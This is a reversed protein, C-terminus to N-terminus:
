KGRIPLAHVNDNEEIEEEITTKPNCNDGLTIQFKFSFMSAIAWAVLVIAMAAWPDLKINM